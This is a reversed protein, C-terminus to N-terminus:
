NIQFRDFLYALLLWMPLEKLHIVSSKIDPIGLRRSRFASLRLPLQHWVLLFLTYLLHLLMSSNDQFWGWGTWPFVTKWSVPGQHWFSQPDSGWSMWNFNLKLYVLFLKNTYTHGKKLSYISSITLKFPASKLYTNMKLLFEIVM